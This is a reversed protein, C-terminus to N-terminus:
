FSFGVNFMPEIFLGAIKRSYDQDFIIRDEELTYPEFSYLALFKDGRDIWAQGMIMGLEFKLVKGLAIQIGTNCNIGGSFLKVSGSIEPVDVVRNFNSVFYSFEERKMSIDHKGVFGGLGFYFNLRDKGKEWLQAYRRMELSVRVGKNNELIPNDLSGWVLENDREKKNLFWFQVDVIASWSGFLNREYGINTKESLVKLPTIKLTNKQSFSKQQSFIILIFFLSTKLIQKNFKLIKM